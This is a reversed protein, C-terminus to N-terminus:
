GSRRSDRLIIDRYADAAPTHVRKLDGDPQHETVYLGNNWLGPYIFEELPKHVGERYDWQITQFLPWWNIGVLPFGQKRLSVATEYLANMYAVKAEDALGASTESIYAPLGFYGQIQRLNRELHGVAERAAKELPVTGRRTFDKEQLYRFIDPYYNVGLIDPQNAHKYCWEIDKADVGKERLFASFPHEPSVKGYALSSPYAAATINHTGQELDGKLGTPFFEAVHNYVIVDASILTVGPVAERLAQTELVMAKAVQAGIKAWSEVSRQYPPWRGILGCFLATVQPENHPTYHDVLGKFHTGMASAYAALADPFRDDIVGDPMWRPTGYHIIDMIPIIKLKNVLYDIPKDIWSWDYVGPKPEAKYWPVSYRIANAGVEAALDLDEKWKEYHGMQLFVDLLRRDGDKEPDTQAIWCNEIGVGWYFDPRRLLANPREPGAFATPGEIMSAGGALAM